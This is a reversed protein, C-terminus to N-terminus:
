AMPLDDFDDDFNNHQPRFDTAKKLVIKKREIILPKHPTVSKSLSREQSQQRELLLNPPIEKKQTIFIPNVRTSAEDKREFM